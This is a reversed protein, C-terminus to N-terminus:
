NLPSRQPLGKRRRNRGVNVDVAPSSRVPRYYTVHNNPPENHGVESSSRKKTLMLTTCSEGNSTRIIVGHGSNTNSTMTTTITISTSEPSDLVSEPTTMRDLLLVRKAPEEEQTIGRHYVKCSLSCFLYPHHLTRVCKICINGSTSSVRFPLSNSSSSLSIPRQKLFVVRANNTRYSQVSSCDINLKKADSIRIVDHYVYRRIQLLSHLHHHSLCHSCLATCCDLCFINKETKKKRKKKETCEDHVSCVTFFKDGLLIEVWEPVVLSSGLCVSCFVFGIGLVFTTPM